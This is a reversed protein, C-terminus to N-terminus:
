QLKFLMERCMKPLTIELCTPFTAVSKIVSGVTKLTDETELEPDIELAKLQVCRHKCLLTM